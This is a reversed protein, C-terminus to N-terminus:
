KQPTRSGKRRTHHAFNLIEVRQPTNVYTKEDDDSDEFYAEAGAPCAGNIAAQEAKGLGENGKLQLWKLEAAAGDM